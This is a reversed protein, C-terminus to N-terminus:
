HVRRGDQWPQRGWTERGGGAATLRPEEKSGQETLMTTETGECEDLQKGERFARKVTDWTDLGM